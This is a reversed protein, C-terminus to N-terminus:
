VIRKIVRDKEKSDFLALSLPPGCLSDAFKRGLFVFPCLHNLQKNTHTQTYFCQIHLTHNHFSQSVTKLSIFTYKNKRDPVKKEQCWFRQKFTANIFEGHAFLCGETQRALTYIHIYIYNYYVIQGWYSFGVHVRVRLRSKTVM